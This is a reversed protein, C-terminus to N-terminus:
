RETEERMAEVAFDTTDAAVGVATGKMGKVVADIAKPDRSNVVVRMGQATLVRATESGIGGSGGTVLGVKGNLDAYSV